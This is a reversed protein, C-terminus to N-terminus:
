ASTPRAACRGCSAGTTSYNTGPYATFLKFSTVGAAVLDAMEDLTDPRVDTVMLHFGYDSCARGDARAQWRQLGELLGGGRDQGAYDVITTTGGILAARTGSEYDDASVTGSVPLELHTHIDV